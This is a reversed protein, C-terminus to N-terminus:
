QKGAPTSCFARRGMEKICKPTFPPTAAYKKLLSVFLRLKSSDDQPKDALTTTPPTSLPTGPRSNPTSTVPTAIGPTSTASTM